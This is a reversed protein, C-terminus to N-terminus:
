VEETLLLNLTYLAINMKKKFICFTMLKIYGFQNMNSFESEEENWFFNRLMFNSKKMLKHFPGFRQLDAVITLTM